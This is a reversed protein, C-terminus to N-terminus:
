PEPLQLSDRQVRRDLLDDEVMVRALQGVPNRRLVCDQRVVAGQGGGEDAHEGLALHLHRRELRRDEREPDVLVRSREGVRARRLAVRLCERPAQTM